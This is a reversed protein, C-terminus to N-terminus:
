NMQNSKVKNIIPGMWFEEYCTEKAFGIPFFIDLDSEQNTMKMKFKLVETLKNQLHLSVDKKLNNEQGTM